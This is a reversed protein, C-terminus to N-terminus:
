IAIADWKQNGDNSDCNWTNISQGNSPNWKAICQNTNRQKLLKTSGDYYWNHNSADVACGWTYVVRGNYPSYADICKTTNLRRFANGGYQSGISEFIQNANNYKYNCDWTYISTGDGPNDVDMCQNTGTRRFVYKQYTSTNAPVNQGPIGLDFYFKQNQSYDCPVVDVASGNYFGNYSLCVVQGSNNRKFSWIRGDASQSWQQNNQGHCNSFRLWRNSTNNIDGADMCKGYKNTITYNSSNWRMKQCDNNYRTKLYVRTDNNTGCEFDLAYNYDQQIPLVTNIQSNISEYWKGVTNPYGNTCDPYTNPNGGRAQYCEDFQPLMQANVYSSGLTQSWCAQGGNGSCPLYAMTEFHLHEDKTGTNGQNGIYESQLVNKQNIVDTDTVARSSLHAYLAVSGDDSQIVIHNGFSGFYRSLIVKGAKAAIINTGTGYNFDFAAFNKHTYDPNYPKQQLTPQQGAAYPLRWGDNTAADAKVSGFLIDLFGLSKSSKSSELMTNSISSLLSVGSTSSVSLESNSSSSSSSSSFSSVLISSSVSSLSSSSIDSSIEVFEAIPLEKKM